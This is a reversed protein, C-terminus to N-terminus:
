LASIKRQSYKYLMMKIDDLEFPKSLYDDMGAALCREREGAIAHATLAVIIMGQWEPNKRIRRTTEYGDVEPMSVDMFVLDFNEQRLFTLAQECGDAVKVQAGVKSILKQGFFRNMDDDDVLLVRFGEPVTLPAVPLDKAMSLPVDRLPFTLTFFFRSGQGETGSEVQLEGGMRKVLRSSIALGLGSGGYKRATSSDAQSFPQFLKKQQEATIGIGTDEIEFLLSVKDASIDSSTVRLTVAGEPTFKIANHLLNLLVQSLRTPDGGLQKKLLLFRNDLTFLLSKGKAQEALLQETQQLVDSLRFPIDEIHLLRSDLRALDLIDNILSLMHQSSANLRSVYEQQTGSLPTFKLLKGANIVANMPTRLEHSMTTLFEDKTKNEASIREAKESERRVQEAQTLSLMVLAILVIFYMSDTLLPVDGILGVARLLTPIFGALVLLIGVSLMLPFRFGQRYRMVATVVFLVTMVLAIGGAFVTGFGLWLHFPILLLCGLFAVQFLRYLRPLYQHITLWSDALKITAAIGIFAFSTGALPFYQRSFSFYHWAGSHNGVELVFSLIFISLALFSQDRLYFFYLLNYITLTLLGGIFFSLLPYLVMMKSLMQGSSYLAPVMALPAHVDHVRIYLRHVSNEPLSLHYNSSLSFPMLDEQIFPAQGGEASLYVAIDRSLSGPITLYWDNERTQNTIDVRLWYASHTLRLDLVGNEASVPRFQTSQTVSSLDLAGEPDELLEADNLLMLPTQQDILEDNLVFGTAAQGDGPQLFIFCLLFGPVVRLAAKIGAKIGEKNILFVSQKQGGVM